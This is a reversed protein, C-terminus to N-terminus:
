SLEHVYGAPPRPRRRGGEELWLGPGGLCEGVHHLTIGDVPQTGLLREGDAPSVAFALEFDEGDGLAH